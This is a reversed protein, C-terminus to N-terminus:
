IYRRSEMKGYARTSGKRRPNRNTFELENHAAEAARSIGHSLKGYIETIIEIKEVKNISKQYRVWVPKLTEVAKRVRDSFNKV